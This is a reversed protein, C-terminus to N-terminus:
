SSWQIRHSFKLHEREVNGSWTEVHNALARLRSFFSFLIVQLGLFRQSSSSSKMSSSGNALEAFSLHLERDALTLETCCCFLMSCILFSCDAWWGFLWALLWCEEDLAVLKFSTGCGTTGNPRGFKDFPNFPNVLPRGFRDLPRDFELVSACWCSAAAIAALWNGGCNAACNVGWCSSKPLSGFLIAANMCCCNAARWWWCCSWCSFLMLLLM